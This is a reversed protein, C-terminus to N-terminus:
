QMGMPIRRVLAPVLTFLGRLVTCGAPHSTFVSVCILCWPLLVLISPLAGMVFSALALVHMHRLLEPHLLRTSPLAGTAFSASGPMHLHRLLGVFSCTSPVAGTAFSALSLRARTTGVIGLAHAHLSTSPPAGAAFVALADRAVLSIGADGIEDSAYVSPRSSPVAGAAFSALAPSASTIGDLM